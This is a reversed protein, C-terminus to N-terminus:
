GSKVSPRSRASARRVELPRARRRDPMRREWAALSLRLAAVLPQERRRQSTIPHRKRGHPSSRTARAGDMETTASLCRTNHIAPPEGQSNDPGGRRPPSRPVRRSVCHYWNTNDQLGKCAEPRYPWWRQGEEGRSGEQESAASQGWPRPTVDGATYTPGTFECRTSGDDVANLDRAEQRLARTPEARAIHDLDGADRTDATLEESRVANSTLTLAGCALSL